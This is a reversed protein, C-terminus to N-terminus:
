ENGRKPQAQNVVYIGIVADAKLVKSKYDMKWGVIGPIIPPMGLLRRCLRKIWHWIKKM